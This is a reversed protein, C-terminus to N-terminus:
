RNLPTRLKRPNQSPARHRSQQQRQTLKASPSSRVSLPPRSSPPSDLMKKQEKKETFSRPVFVSEGSIPDQGTHYMCTSRTMPTPTFIQVGEVPHYDGEQQLKRLADALEKAEKRGTGPHAVMFYYKLAQPRSGNIQRFLRRFEELRADIRGETRADIGAEIRGDGKDKMRNEIRTNLRDELRADGRADPRDEVQGEFRVTDRKGGRKGDRKGGRGCDWDGGRGCDWDGGRGCDKNMFHLVKASVHEPAIKLCGSVHHLCLEKLYKPSEIALDYRIGSRVFVKKVGPIQRARQLLSTLRQHSRDLGPCSLCERRCDPGRGSRCDMGYMNASPGGLDDIYGQFDPHSALQRIEALISEESRSIIRNGQHLALSCFSCNGLCGRHTVVSFRAMALEPFEVPIKRSYPLGYIWDLDVPRYNPMRYQLVFRNAHPQALNQQNSFLRQGACFQETDTSVQEFSPILQFGSPVLSRIICTGAIGDLCQRDSGQAGASQRSVDVGQRSLGVNQRRVDVAQGGLNQGNELCEQGGLDHGDLDQGNGDWDHGNELRRELRRAIEIVQLEGPGYVLIDARSDLLISRRVRNQWYDYHGFRRLSAEVGGIVIIAGPFLQRIKNSYVLIARDPIGSQYPVSPDKARERKLPTYNVLLSDIAGSTIGFFFRPRGLKLFDKDQKWDPRGVVGVRYGKADLVRAIVGTGSLPHDAYPEGTILIIDFDSGCTAIM